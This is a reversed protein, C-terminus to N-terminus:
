SRFILSFSVMLRTVLYLLLFAFAINNLVFIVVAVINLALLTCGTCYVQLPHTRLRPHSCLATSAVAVSLVVVSIKEYVAEAKIHVRPPARRVARRLKKHCADREPLPAACPRIPLSPEFRLCGMLLKCNIERFKYYHTHFHSFIGFKASFDIFIHLCIIIIM